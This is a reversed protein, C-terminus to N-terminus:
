KEGGPKWVLSGIRDMAKNAEPYGSQGTYESFKEM